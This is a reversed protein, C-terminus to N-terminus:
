PATLELLRHALHKVSAILAEVPLQNLTDAAVLAAWEDREGALRLDNGPDDSKRDYPKHRSM